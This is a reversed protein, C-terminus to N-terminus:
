IEKLRKNLNNSFNQDLNRYFEYMRAGNDIVADKIKKKQAEQIAYSLSSPSSNNFYIAGDGAISSFSDPYLIPIKLFWAEFLPINAPGFLSPYVILDCNKYIFNMEEEPLGEFVFFRNELSKEKIMNKINMLNGRDNGAFVYNISQDEM